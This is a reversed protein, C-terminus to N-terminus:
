EMDVSVFVGGAAFNGVAVGKITFMDRSLGIEASMIKHNLENILRHADKLAEVWGVKVSRQKAEGVRISLNSPNLNQKDGDILSVKDGPAVRRELKYEAVMRSARRWKQSDGATLASKNWDLPEYYLVHGTRDLKKYFPLVSDGSTLKTAIVAKGDSRTYLYNDLGVSLVSGDDLNFLVPIKKTPIREVIIFGVTVRCGDWTYAYFPRQLQAAEAVSIDGGLAHILTDGTLCM